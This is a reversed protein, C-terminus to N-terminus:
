NVNSDADAAVSWSALLGTLAAAIVDPTTNVYERALLVSVRKLEEFTDPVDAVLSQKSHWNPLRRGIRNM